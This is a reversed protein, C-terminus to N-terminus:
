HRSSLPTAIATAVLHDDLPTWWARVTITQGAFEPLLLRVELEGEGEPFVEVEQFRVYRQVHPDIAKYVAEKLAFRLRVAERYALADRLSLDGLANREHATLIKPALDPRALEAVGPREEVDVGLTQVDPALPAVLAVALRRKHSVSGLVGAPMLPAGRATRLVPHPALGPSVRTLADRLAVRGGVFGVRRAVALTRALQQEDDHLRRQAVLLADLLQQEDKTNPLRVASLLGHPLTSQNLLAFHDDRSELSPIELTLQTPSGAYDDSDAASSGLPLEYRHGVIAVLTIRPYRAATEGSMDERGRTENIRGDLVGGDTRSASVFLCAHYM